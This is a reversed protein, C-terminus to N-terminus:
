NIVVTVQTKLAPTELSPDEPAATGKTGEKHAAEVEPSSSVMVAVGMIRKVMIHTEPLLRFLHEKTIGSHDVLDQFTRLFMLPTLLALFPRSYRRYACTTCIQIGQRDYPRDSVQKGSNGFSHQRRAPPVYKGSEDVLGASLDNSGTSSRGHSRYESSSNRNSGSNRHVASFAEEEDGNELEVRHKSFTDGEIERAIKSAEEERERFMMVSSVKSARLM